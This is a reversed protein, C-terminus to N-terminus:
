EVDVGIIFELILDSPFICDLVSSLYMLIYFRDEMFSIFILLYEENYITALIVSNTM